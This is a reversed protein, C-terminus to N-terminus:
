EDATWAKTDRAQGSSDFGSTTEIRDIGAHRLVACMDDIQGSLGALSDPAVELADLLEGAGGYLGARLVRERQRFAPGVIATLDAAPRDLRALVQDVDHVLELMGLEALARDRADFFLDQFSFQLELDDPQASLCRALTPAIARTWALYRAQREEFYADAAQEGEPVRYFPDDCRKLAFGLLFRLEVTREDPAFHTDAWGSMSREIHPAPLPKRSTMVTAAEVAIQNLGAYSLREIEALDYAHQVLVVQAEPSELGHEGFSAVLAEFAADDRWGEAAKLGGTSYVFLPIAFANLEMDPAGNRRLIFTAAAEGIRSRAAEYADPGQESALEVALYLLEDNQQRLATRVLRTFEAEKQGGPPAMGPLGLDAALLALTRALREDEDM